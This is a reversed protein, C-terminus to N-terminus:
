DAPTFLTKVGTREEFTAFGKEWETVPYTHTILPATQVKGTRMLEIARLWSPPTSANSGTATLEKYVLQDLDWAVPKGFLGVQVYRGRRRVLTLLQQAAAGAGACEYVVDAGLGGETLARILAVPDSRQVNVVHDAGLAQALALRQADVDTGLVVATAGAAKVVQLTLLGIAGPGAIVAVDGPAVTPTTLTAHVVCALPETLAGARFDVNEPLAHINRAPVILYSTFGGNVASGISRRELCLNVNGARCYRCAGCYSFYTETTVRLGPTLEQVGEGLEVIEGAVEHGLVVPPWSRFEDKYIHLDTGCLGAAHVRVKVQGPGPEPVPIDCVAVNGVGPAVKM